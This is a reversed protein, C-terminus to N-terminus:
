TKVAAPNISSDTRVSDPHRIEVVRGPFPGPMGFKAPEEAPSREPISPQRAQAIQGQSSRLVLWTAPIGVALGTVAGLLFGRRTLDADGRDSDADMAIVRATVHIGPTRNYDLW